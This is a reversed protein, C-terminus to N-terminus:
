LLMNILDNKKINIHFNYQILQQFLLYWIHIHPAAQFVGNVNHFNSM